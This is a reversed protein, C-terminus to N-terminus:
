INGIRPDNRAKLNEIIARNEVMGIIDSYDSILLEEAGRVEFM